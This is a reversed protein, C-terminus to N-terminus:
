EFDNSLVLRANKYRAAPDRQLYSVTSSLELADVDYGESGKSEHLANM